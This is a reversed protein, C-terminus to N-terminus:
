RLDDDGSSTLKVVMRAELHHRILSNLACQEEIHGGEVWGREGAATGAEAEEGM